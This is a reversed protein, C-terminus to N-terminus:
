LHQCFIADSDIHMEASLQRVISEKGKSTSCFMIRHDSIDNLSKLLMQAKLHEACGASPVETILYLRYKSSLVPMLEAMSPIFNFQSDFLTKNTSISVRRLHSDNRKVVRRMAKEILEAQETNESNVEVQLIQTTVKGDKAKPYLCLIFFFLTAVTILIITIM